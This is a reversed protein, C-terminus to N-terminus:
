EELITSIMSNRNFLTECIELHKSNDKNEELLFENISSFFLEKNWTSIVKNLKYKKFLKDLDSDKDTICLVNCKSALVNPLKSPLSGKSTGPLQPIVQIFSRNYLEELNEKPVFDHFKIKLNSNKVKLEEFVNGQSFFHFHIQPLKKSCYNFFEYLEKPNQKEGLAGSYIIHKIDSSLIKELDNTKEKQNYNITVFPYQVVLKTDTLQYMKQATEKMEKSLFILTDCSKYVKNEIKHIMKKTIRFLFSKKKQSYIEQLDHVMGVKKIDNKIFPLICYFALSPPFVPIIIATEKRYKFIKRLVFFSFSIELILRRVFTKSSYYNRKGGRIITINDLQKNSIKTKWKPYFPHFCLVTVNHGKEKLAIAMDTNFKGTSIPEPFFFPSILIINKPPTNM